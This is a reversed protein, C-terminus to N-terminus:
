LRYLVCGGAADNRGSLGYSNELPRHNEYRYDCAHVSQHVAASHHQHTRQIHANWCFVGGNRRCDVRREEEHGEKGPFSCCSLRHYPRRLTEHVGVAPSNHGNHTHRPTRRQFGRRHVLLCAVPRYEACRVAARSHRLPQLANEVHGGRYRFEGCAHGHPANYAHLCWHRHREGRAVVRQLAGSHFHPVASPIHGM